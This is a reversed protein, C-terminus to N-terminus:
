IKGYIFVIAIPPPCINNKKCFHIKGEEVGLGLIM